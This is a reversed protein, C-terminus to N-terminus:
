DTAPLAEAQVEIVGGRRVVVAAGELIVAIIASPIAALLTVVVDIWFAWWGRGTAPRLRGSVAESAFDRHFTLLNLLTQWMSAM